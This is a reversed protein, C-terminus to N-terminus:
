RRRSFPVKQLLEAVPPQDRDIMLRQPIAAPDTGILVDGLPSLRFGADFEQSMM